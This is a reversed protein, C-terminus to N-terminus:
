ECMGKRKADTYGDCDGLECSRKWDSCAMKNNGLKWMLFGRNSYAMALGPDLEIAKSYDSLARDLQGKSVYLKARNNYAHADGPNIEIVKNFDSLARDLQGKNAYVVGRVNYAYAYRPNIELAKNLEAVAESWKEKIGYSIGKFLHITTKDKIKQGIVDEIVTLSRKARGDSPDVQLAKGFEEKAEKFKGQAAYEVGKTWIQKVTSQSYSFGSPLFLLILVSLGIRRLLKM